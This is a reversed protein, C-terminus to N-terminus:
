IIEPALYDPTGAFTNAAEGDKLIKALGFDTISLYGDEELLINEPKLDRYVINENHLHALGMAINYIYFRARNESFRKEKRLHTFLEGGRAFRM